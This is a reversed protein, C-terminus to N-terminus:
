SEVPMGEQLWVYGTCKSCGLIIRPGSLSAWVCVCDGPQGHQTLKMPHQEALAGGALGPLEDWTAAPYAAVLNVLEPTWSVHRQVLSPCCM